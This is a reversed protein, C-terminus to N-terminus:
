ADDTIVHNQSDPCLPHLPTGLQPVYGEEQLELYLCKLLLYIQESEPHQRDAAVFMQNTCNIEICSFGPIKQVGRNQMLCRVKLVNNWRGAVASINSMLMYYGSNQPDLRFLQQSALEALEVNHHVRCAGLLAGWIGADAEFPMNRIFDFADDLRGARGLLDVMCAYHEMRAKIGHVDIMLRFYRLGDDIIGSHGCASILVLFTVHDPKIGSEEMKQFLDFADKAMGHAGYAAIMSNWSVENKTEMTEFVRHASGLDGCKGYMDILASVAFLDLRLSCKTIFGHIEKGYLLAPLNACSSLGASITVCDHAAGTSGMLQFLHIAEEPQGNQSFSTIMTNWVVSDKEHIKTFVRYGTEVRGCKAYMDILASGVYCKDEFGNRICYCHLEKGLTLAVLYACAPLVGALTVSNPKLTANILSRFIELASVSMGNLVYGSIMASYLVVDMVQTADFVKQAMDVDRCKFYLDILASKLFVDLNVGNRLIYGHVEKGQKWGATECVSPLFSAFTISDPKVGASLMKNFFDLADENLGNQVCGSIMCNWTVLDSQPMSSFIKHADGLCQCKSYMSVITNAVSADLELGCRIALAHLQKGYEINAESSCVSLFTVFSGTNPNIGAERMKKFLGLAEGVDGNKVYGGIMVNWLVIDIQIMKDFVQRAEKISDNDAYMKILASGVFVDEELGMGRITMHVMRGVQIASLGCCAKIVYPFTFKDPLLGVGLMKFYFLLAYKFWSLMTFGRIMWTWPLSYRREMQFFVNKADVINRCLIYMSLVKSELSGMNSLGNMIIQAHVQRGIQLLSADSCDRLILSFRSVIKEVENGPYDVANEYNLTIDAINRVVACSPRLIPFLSVRKYSLVAVRVRM